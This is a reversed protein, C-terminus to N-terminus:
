PKPPNLAPAQPNPPSVTGAEVKNRFDSNAERCEELTAEVSEDVIAWPHEVAM